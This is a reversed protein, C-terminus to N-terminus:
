HLKWKEEEFEKKNPFKGEILCKELYKFRPLFAEEIWKKDYEIPIKDLRKKDIKVLYNDYEKVELGYAVIYAKHIRTGYMQVLVQNIYDKHKEINFGKEFQYTKIEYICDNTNADLNIRLRGVIVQKDMEVNDIELSEIIKHEFNTGAKTYKNDFHSTDIGIKKLWWKEFTKTNWNGIVYKTDSAGIFGSRDHNSIM